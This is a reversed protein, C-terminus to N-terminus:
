IEIDKYGIKFITIIQEPTIIEGTNKYGLEKRFALIANAFHYERETYKNQSDNRLKSYKGYESIVEDSGWLLINNTMGSFKELWENVPYNPIHKSLILDSHLMLLNKFSDRKKQELDIENQAKLKLQLRFWFFTFIFAAWVLNFILNDNLTMPTGVFTLLNELGRQISIADM